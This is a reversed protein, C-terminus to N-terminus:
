RVKDKPVLDSSTQNWVSTSLSNVTTKTTLEQTTIKFCDGNTIFELVFISTIIKFVIFAKAMVQILINNQKCSINKM